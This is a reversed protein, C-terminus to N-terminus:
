SLCDRNINRSFSIPRELRLSYRRRTEAPDLVSRGSQRISRGDTCVGDDDASRCADARTCTKRAALGIPRSFHCQTSEGAGCACPNRRRSDSSRSRARPPSWPRLGDAWAQLRPPIPVAMCDGRGIPISFSKADGINEQINSLLRIYYYRGTLLSRCRVRYRFRSLSAEAGSPVSPRVARTSRPRYGARLAAPFASASRNSVSPGPRVSWDLGAPDPEPRSSLGIWFTAPAHDQFAERLM